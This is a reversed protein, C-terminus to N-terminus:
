TTLAAHFIVEKDLRVFGLADFNQTHPAHEFVFMERRPRVGGIRAPSANVLVHHM